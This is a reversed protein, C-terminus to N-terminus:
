ARYGVPIIYLAQEPKPMAVVRAVADDDFAGVSVSGLGLAEAQLHLNEAAIGVDMHVYRIGREQYRSTTREEVASFVFSVPAQAIFEQGWAAAALDARLDRDHEKRLRHGEPLYRFAGEACVLYLELPYCAGASPAARRGDESTIGQASWLLQSMQELTLPRELYRRHSRRSAVAQEVSVEGKRAPPPLTVAAGVKAQALLEIAM